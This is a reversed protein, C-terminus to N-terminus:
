LFSSDQTVVPVIPDWLSAEPIDVHHLDPWAESVPGMRHEEPVSALATCGETPLWPGLQPCPRRHGRVLLCTEM